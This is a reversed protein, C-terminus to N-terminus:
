QALRDLNVLETTVTSTESGGAGWTATIKFKIEDGSVVNPTIGINFVPTVLSGNNASWGTASSVMYFTPSAHSTFENFAPNAGGNWLHSDRYNRLAEAQEQMLNAAQTRNRASGGVGFAKNAVNMAGLLVAALISLALVVEVLLDGREAWGVDNMLLNSDFRISGRGSASRVVRRMKSKRELFVTLLKQFFYYMFNPKRM